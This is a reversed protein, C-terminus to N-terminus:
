VRIKLKAGSARKSDKDNDKDKDKDGDRTDKRATSVVRVRGQVTVIVVTPTYAMAYPVTRRFALPAPSPKANPSTAAASPALISPSVAPHGDFLLAPGHTVHHPCCRRFGVSVIM